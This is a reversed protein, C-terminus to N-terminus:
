VLGMRKKVMPRLNGLEALANSAVWRASDSDIKAIEGATRVALPHLAANRKGIQRLAWNVAKKVFNREDISGNMIWTLFPMFAGDPAKKDHVALAAMMVYGARKVFEKNSKVWKMAKDHAMATRSFLNSVTQDCVDWSDFDSTWQDMQSSTVQEPDDVISALIRADHIGSDWLRLALAHDRGTKKALKRIAPMPTCYNKHTSIGYREQGRIAKESYHSKLFTIIEGYKM